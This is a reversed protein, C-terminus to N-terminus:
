YQINEKNKEEGTEGCNNMKEKTKKERKGASVLPIEVCVVFSPLRFPIVRL